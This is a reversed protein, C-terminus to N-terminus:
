LFRFNEATVRTAATPNKVWEVVTPVGWTIKSFLYIHARARNQQWQPFLAGHAKLVSSGGTVPRSLMLLLKPSDAKGEKQPGWATKIKLQLYNLSFHALLNTTNFEKYKWSKGNHSMPNLVQSIAMLVYTWDGAETLPNLIQCWLNCVLQPM